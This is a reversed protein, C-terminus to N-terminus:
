ETLPIASVEKMFCDLADIIMRVTELDSCRCFFKGNSMMVYYASEGSGHKYVKWEEFAFIFEGNRNKYEVLLMVVLYVFYTMGALGFISLVTILTLYPEVFCTTM